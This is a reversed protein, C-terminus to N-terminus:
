LIASYTSRLSIITCGLMYVVVILSVIISYIEERAELLESIKRVKQPIKYLNNNQYMFGHEFSKQYM